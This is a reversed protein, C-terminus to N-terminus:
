KQRLRFKPFDSELINQAQERLSGLDNTVTNWVIEWVISFYAHVAINRLGIIAKWPIEDYQERLENSIRAAAEGIVILKLLVSNQLLENQLFEEKEIGLLFREADNCSGIIDQLYLEDSPM